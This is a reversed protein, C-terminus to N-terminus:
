VHKLIEGIGGVVASTGLVVGKDYEAIKRVFFEAFRLILVLVAIYVLDVFLSNAAAIGGVIPNLLFIPVYLAAASFGDSHTLMFVIASFAVLASLYTVAVLGSLSVKLIIFIMYKGSLMYNYISYFREFLIPFLKFITLAVVTYIVGIVLGVVGGDMGDRIGLQATSAIMPGFVVLKRFLERTKLKEIRRRPNAEALFYWVRLVANNLYERQSKSLFLDITGVLAAFGAFFIALSSILGKITELSLM